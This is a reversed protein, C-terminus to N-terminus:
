NLPYCNKVNKFTSELQLVQNFVEIISIKSELQHNYVNTTVHFFLYM